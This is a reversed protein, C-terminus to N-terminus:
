DILLINSPTSKGDTRTNELTQQLCLAWSLRSELMSAIREQIAIELDVEELMFRRPSPLYESSALRARKKPRSDM